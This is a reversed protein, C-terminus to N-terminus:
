ANRSHFRAALGSWNALARSRPAGPVDTVVVGKSWTTGGDVSRWAILDGDSPLGHAHGGAPTKGVVATIVITHGSFAIRPGCHRTLPVIAAESVQTPASFTKGADVSSSLYIGTGAGFVLAVRSGNAAMQPERAPADPVIPGVSTALVIGVLLSLMLGGLLKLSTGTSVIQSRERGHNAPVDAFFDPAHAQLSDLGAGLGAPIEIMIANISLM